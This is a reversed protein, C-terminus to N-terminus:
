VPLDSKYVLYKCLVVRLLKTYDGTINSDVDETTGVEVSGCQTLNPPDCVRIVLAKESTLTDRNCHTEDTPGLFAFDDCRFQDVFTLAVYQIKEGRFEGSINILAPGRATM